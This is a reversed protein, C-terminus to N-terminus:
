GLEFTSIGFTRAIPLSPIGGKYMRATEFSPELGAQEALKTGAANDEPVDLSVPSGPEMTACLASLIAAAIRQDDAFLPGIKYGSRLKARFIQDVDGGAFDYDAGAGVVWNGLDWDYGAVLGGLVEDESSGLSSDFNGYGLEGGAYFGTWDPSTAVPVPAALVPDDTAPAPSGALAPASALALAATALTFKKFM